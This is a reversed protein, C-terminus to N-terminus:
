EDALLEYLSEVEPSGAESYLLLQDLTGADETVVARAGVDLADEIRARTLSEALDPHTYRLALNGCPHAREKRWFLEKREGSRVRDLLARPAEHREPLRVAHTPDLYAYSESPGDGSLSLGNAGNQEALLEVLEVIEVDEPVGLGLREDYMQSFAFKGEPSLVVLREAGSADLDALNSEALTSAVDRLGISSALFGSNRGRGILVPDMGLGDVLRLAADLVSPRLYRAADGVFLAVEGSGEAPEPAQEEYPNEWERLREELEYVTDPARGDEVVEARVAAIAEPLPQSTVCHTRCNGNDAFAFLRDVTDDNWSIMGRRESAVLQGWGHPTLTENHSVHGVPDVHRCMLCHRCYETTDIVNEIM